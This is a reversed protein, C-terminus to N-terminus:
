RDFPSRFAQPFASPSPARSRESLPQAWGRETWRPHDSAPLLRGEAIARFWAESEFEPEGTGM